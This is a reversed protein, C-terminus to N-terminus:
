KWIETVLDQTEQAANENLAPAAEKHNKKLDRVVITPM